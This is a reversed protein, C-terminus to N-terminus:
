PCSSPADLADIARELASQDFGQLVQEVVMDERSIFINGPAAAADFYDLSWKCSDAVAPFLLGKYRAYAEAYEGTATAGFDDEFVMAIVEIRHGEGDIDQLSEYIGNLWQAEQTCFQCWGATGFLLVGVISEDAFLDSLSLM